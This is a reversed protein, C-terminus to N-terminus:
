ASARFAGGWNAFGQCSGPLASESVLALGDTDLLRLRQRRVEILGRDAFASLARSISEVSLGLYSAIEARSMRLNFETSSYGRERTRHSLQLLFAAVRPESNTHAIMNMLWQDRTLEAGFLQHMRRRLGTRAGSALALFADYSLMYAAAGDELATATASHVETAFADFGLVDGSLAFGTVHETGDSLAMATKFCGLRVVHLSTLPEGQRFLCEGRRVSRCGTVLQDLEPLADAM